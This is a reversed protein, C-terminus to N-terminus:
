FPFLTEDYCAGALLEDCSHSGICVRHQRFAKREEPDIAPDGDDTDKDGLRDLQTRCQERCDLESVIPNIGCRDLKNCLQDCGPACATLHLATACAALRLPNM